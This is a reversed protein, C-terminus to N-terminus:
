LVKQSKERQPTFGRTPRSTLRGTINATPHPRWRNRTLRTTRELSNVERRSVKPIEM